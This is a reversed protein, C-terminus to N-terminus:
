CVSPIFIEMENHKLKIFRNKKQMVIEYIERWRGGGVNENVATV